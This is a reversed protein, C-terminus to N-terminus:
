LGSSTTQEPRSRNRSFLFMHSFLCDWFGSRSRAEKKNKSVRRVSVCVCVCLATDDCIQRSVYSIRFPGFSM